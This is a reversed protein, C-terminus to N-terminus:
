PTSRLELPAGSLRRETIATVRDRVAAPLGTRDLARGALDLLATAARRLRPDDLGHRAAAVWRDAAPEALAIAAATVTPDSLLAAVVAVPAIWEDGPQADLYRVELYGRPRIPPFLTSLHYDLDGVTPRRPGGGAIWDAFSLGQPMHWPGDDRRVCLLSASLAYRSWAAAPDDHHGVPRTRDPDIGIWAGMRASAWGTDRGAYTRSTAFAAVLAPGMMTLAAWRSPLDAASGGDVCVQVGATSCMMTRGAPGRRDFVREMTAYRPTNLIRRPPRYPDIGQDGLTLDSGALLRTLAAIDAETAAHLATLSDAPASSIEVQGGPELTVRGGGPLTPGPDALHPGLAQRIQPLDLHRHPAAVHHVTWELEVGIRRPPGTKFCVAQLHGEAQALDHLVADADEDTPPM